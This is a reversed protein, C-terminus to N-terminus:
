DGKERLEIADVIADPMADLRQNVQQFQEGRVRISEDRDNKLQQVLLATQTAQKTGARALKEVSTAMRGIVILIVAALLGLVSWQQGSTLSESAATVAAALSCTGVGGLTLITTTTM